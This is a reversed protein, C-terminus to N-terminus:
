LLSNLFFSIFSTEFVFLSFLRLCFCFNATSSVYEHVITAPDLARVANNDLFKASNIDEEEVGVARGTGQNLGPVARAVVETVNEGRVRKHLPPGDEHGRGSDGDNSNKHSTSTSANAIASSRTRANNNNNNARQQAESYASQPSELAFASSSVLRAQLSEDVHGSASSTASMAGPRQPEDSDAAATHMLDDADLSQGSVSM